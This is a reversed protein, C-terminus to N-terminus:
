RGALVEIVREAEARLAAAASPAIKGNREFADVQVLFTELRRVAADPTGLALRKAAQDLEAGLALAAPEAVAGRAVADDLESALWGLGSELMPELDDPLRDLLDYGIAAEIEDVTVEYDRWDDSVLEDVVSGRVGPEIRNPTRIAVVELDGRNSVDDLGEDRDLFVAVKWTYDPVAVKGEGKLTPPNPGYEGGAILWVEAGALARDTAYNEFDLWPGGNNAAAQPLINTTLYTAANDALSATRNFSQTMHGRSYGSGTFDFNVVGYVGAPLLPDPTYCECRDASGIHTADLNWSVWNAGGRSPNYSLAYEDREILVDDSPDADTPTGFELHDQFVVGSPVDPVAEVTVDTSAATGDAAVTVTATGVGEATLNGFEDSTVVAPDSTTFTVTVGEVEDGFDDVVTVFLARDYGVPLRVFSASVVVRSPEGPAGVGWPVIQGAVATSPDFALAGPTDEAGPTFNASIWGDDTRVAHGPTFSVDEGLRADCYVPQQGLTEILSLCDAVATWPTADLTGDDDTDLDQGNAGTFGRVLLYTPNDGNEFNLSTVRDPTGLTFGSEAAVFAGQASLADGSLATVEEIVGAGAAGDGVVVLTLGDLSTGPAGGLEFYEDVDSGPQDARIESLFVSGEAGGGGDDGDGDGGAGNCAGFTNAAAPRWVGASDRQLSHGVPTASSEAVGIDTSTLGAAPGEVATLDGEWSLFEVVAGAGDVLAVGDPSGNQIGNTGYELVVVGEPECTAPITDSLARRDYVEGTSGNYLVVSWGALELGAPGQLEIAEGADTGDNDYHLESIRVGGSEARVVVSAAAAPSGAAGPQTPAESCSLALGTAVVAALVTPTKDM